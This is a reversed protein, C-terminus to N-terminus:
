TYLCELGTTQRENKFRILYLKFSAKNWRRNRQATKKKNTWSSILKKFKKFMEAPIEHLYKCVSSHKSNSVQIDRLRM